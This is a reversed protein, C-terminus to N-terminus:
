TQLKRIMFKGSPTQIPMSATPRRTVGLPNRRRRRRQRRRLPLWRQPPSGAVHVGSRCPRCLRSIILYCSDICSWSSLVTLLKKQKMFFFNRRNQTQSDATVRVCQFLTVVFARMDRCTHGIQRVLALSRANPQPCM